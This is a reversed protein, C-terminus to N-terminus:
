PLIISATRPASRSTAANMPREGEFGIKAGDKRRRHSADSAAPEGSEGPWGARDPVSRARDHEIGDQVLGAQHPNAQVEARNARCEDGEGEDIRQPLPLLDAEACRLPEELQVFGKAPHPAATSSCAPHVHVREDGPERHHGHQYHHRAAQGSAHQDLLRGFDHLRLPRWPASPLCCQARRTVSSMMFFHRRAWMGM